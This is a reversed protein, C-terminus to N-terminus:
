ILLDFLIYDYFCIFLHNIFNHFKNNKFDYKRHNTLRFGLIKYIEYLSSSKAM